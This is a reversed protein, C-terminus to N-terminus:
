YFSSKPGRLHRGEGGKKREREKERKGLSLLPACRKPETRCMVAEWPGRWCGFLPAITPTVAQKPFLLFCRHGSALLREAEGRAGGWGMWWGNGGGPRRSRSDSAGELIGSDGSFM